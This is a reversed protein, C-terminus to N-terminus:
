APQRGYHSAVEIIDNAATAAEIAVGVTPAAATITDDILGDTAHMGVIAGATIAAGAIMKLIAGDLLAVLAREGAAGPKNQLVGIPIDTVAAVVLVKKATDLKVLKFQDSSLDGAAELVITRMTQTTAM